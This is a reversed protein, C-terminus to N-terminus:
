AAKASLPFLAAQTPRPAHELDYAYGFIEAHAADLTRLDDLGFTFALSEWPIVDGNLSEFRVLEPEDSWSTEPDIYCGEGGCTECEPDREAACDDCDLFLSVDISERFAFARLRGGIAIGCLVDSDQLCRHQVELADALAWDGRKARRMAEHQIGGMVSM